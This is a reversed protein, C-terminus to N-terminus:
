GDHRGTGYNDAPVQDGSFVPDKVPMWFEQQEMKRSEGEVESLTTLM